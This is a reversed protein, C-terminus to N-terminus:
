AAVPKTEAPRGTTVDVSVEIGLFSGTTGTFTGSIPSALEPLRAVAVRLLAKGAILLNTPDYEIWGTEPVYVEAWAHTAGGGTLHGGAAADTARDYLYGSVFRAAFGARRACEVFLWAMDRCTGRRAAITEVPSLTGEADRREYGVAANVASNLEDLFALGSTGAAALPQRMFEKVALEPDATAVTAFPALDPIEAADYVIPFATAAPTARHPMTSEFREIVLTSVIDLIDTPRSFEAIAVANGLPDHM